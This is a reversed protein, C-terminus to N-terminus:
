NNKVYYIARKLIGLNGVFEPLNVQVIKFIHM